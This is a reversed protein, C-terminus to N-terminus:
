LGHRWEYFGFLDRLLPDDRILRLLRLGRESTRYRFKIKRSWKSRQKVPEPDVRELFGRDELFVAMPDFTKQNLSCGYILRTKVIPEAAKELVELLIAVVDRKRESM